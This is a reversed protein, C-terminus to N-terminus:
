VPFITLTIKTTDFCKCLFESSQHWTAQKLTGSMAMISINDLNSLTCDGFSTLTVKPRGLEGRVRGTGSACAFANPYKVTSLNVLTSDSHLHNIAAAENPTDCKLRYGNKNTIMIMNTWKQEDLNGM